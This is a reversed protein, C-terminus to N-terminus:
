IRALRRPSRPVQAVQRRDLHGKGLLLEDELLHDVDDGFAPWRNARESFCRGPTTAPQRQSGTTRASILKRPSAKNVAAVSTASNPSRCRKGVARCSM